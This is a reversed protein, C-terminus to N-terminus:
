CDLLFMSCCQLSPGDRRWCGLLLSNTRRSFL